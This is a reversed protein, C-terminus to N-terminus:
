WYQWMLIRGFGLLGIDTSVPCLEESVPRPRIGANSPLLYRLSRLSPPTLGHAGPMFFAATSRDHVGVERGDGNRSDAREESVEATWPPIQSPAETQQAQKQLTEQAALCLTPACM